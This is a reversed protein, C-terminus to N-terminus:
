LKHEQGTERYTPARLNKIITVPTQAIIQIDKRFGQQAVYQHDYALIEEDTLKGQCALQAIGTLGPKVSHRLTDKALADMYQPAPRPGVISMDGALVNFFQPLEDIKSARLIKGVRTIRESDPLANGNIDFANHMSKIKYITFDQGNLGIRRQKYIPSERLSLATVVCAGALIPLSLAALAVGAVIDFVRKLKM